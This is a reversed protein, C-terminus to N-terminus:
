GNVKDLRSEDASKVESVVKNESAAEDNAICISDATAYICPIPIAWRSMAGDLKIIPRFPTRLNISKPIAILSPSSSLPFIHKSIPVPHAKRAPTELKETKGEYSEFM